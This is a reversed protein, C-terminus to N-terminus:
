DEELMKKLEQALVTKSPPKQSIKRIEKPDFGAKRLVDNWSLKLFNTAHNVLARHEGGREQMASINVKDGQAHLEKVRAAIAEPNNRWPYAVHDVKKAESLSAKKLIDDWPLKM